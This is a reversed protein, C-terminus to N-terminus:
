PSRKRNQLFHSSKHPTQGERLTTEHFVKATVWPDLRSIALGLTWDAQLIRYALAGPRTAAKEAEFLPSRLDGSSQQSINKRNVARVQLGRDPVITVIGTERSSDRLAIRPVQWDDLAGPPRGTLTINFDCKGITKESLHLTLLRKGDTTSETWHNIGDGTATEIELAAPIEVELRFVGSRTITVSLDASIVLRDDGLSVLQWTESRLEPAVETVNLKM